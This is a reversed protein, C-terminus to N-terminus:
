SKSHALFFYLLNGALDDIFFGAFDVQAFGEEVGLEVPEDLVDGLFILIADFVLVVQHGGDLHTRLNPLIGPLADEILVSLYEIPAMSIHLRIPLIFALLRQFM